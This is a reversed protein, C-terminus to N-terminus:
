ITTALCSLICELYKDESGDPLEPKVAYQQFLRLNVVYARQQQKLYIYLPSRFLLFFRALHSIDKRCAAFFLERISMQCFGNKGPAALNSM